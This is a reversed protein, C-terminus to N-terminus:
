KKQIYAIAAGMLLYVCLNFGANIAFVGLPEQAYICAQLGYPVTFVLWGWFIVGLAREIPAKMNYILYTLVCATFFSLLTGYLAVNQQIEQEMSVNSLAAWTTGLFYSSYWFFGVAINIITAILISPLMKTM